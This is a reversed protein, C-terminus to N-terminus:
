WVEGFDIKDIKCDQRFCTALCEASAGAAYRWRRWGYNTIRLKCHGGGGEGDKGVVGSLRRQFGFVSKRGPNFRGAGVDEEVGACAGRHEVVGVGEADIERFGAGDCQAVAMVVVGPVEGFDEFASPAGREEKMGVGQARAEADVVCRLGDAHRWGCAVGDSRCAVGPAPPDFARGFESGAHPKGAGHWAFRSEFVGAAGKIEIRVALLRVGDQVVEGQAHACACAPHHAQSAAVGADDVRELVDQLREASRFDQRDNAAHMEAMRVRFSQLPCGVRKLHIIDGKKIGAM